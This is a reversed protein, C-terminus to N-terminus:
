PQHPRDRLALPTGLASLLVAAAGLWQRGTLMEQLLVAALVATFVPVLPLLLAATTASLRQLTIGYLLFPVAQLLLGSAVVLAADAFTLSVKTLPSIITWVLGVALFAVIQSTRALRLAGVDRSMRRIAINYLSAFLVGALVLAVGWRRLSYPDLESNWGLLGVGALALACLLGIARSPLEGLIPWALLIVLPTEVAFLTAEATAPVMTLGYTSLGYALAPQLLGPLGLRWDSLRIPAGLWISLVSLSLSSVALQGMLLTLPEMSSLAVKSLVNGISWSLCALLGCLLPLASRQPTM